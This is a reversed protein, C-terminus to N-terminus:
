MTHCFCSININGWVADQRVFDLRKFAVGGPMHLMVYSLWVTFDM